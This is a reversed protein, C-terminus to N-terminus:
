SLFSNLRCAKGMGRGICSRPASATLSSTRRLRTGPPQLFRTPGWTAIRTNYSLTEFRGFTIQAGDPQEELEAELRADTEPDLRLPVTRETTRQETGMDRMIKALLPKAALWRSIQTCFRGAAVLGREGSEQGRTGDSGNLHVGLAPM